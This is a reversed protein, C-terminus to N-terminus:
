FVEDCDEDSNELYIILFDVESIYFGKPFHALHM